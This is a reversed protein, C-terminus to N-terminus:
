LLGAHRLAEATRPDKQAIEKLVKELKEEREELTKYRSIMPSLTTRRDWLIFGVLTFMGALVVYILNRLDAVSARLDNIQLRLSDIQQQNALKLDDIRQALGDFQQQNALKFDDIQRQLSKLGEELRILRDRDGQTFPIAQRESQAYVEQGMLMASLFLVILTILKMGKVRGADQRHTLGVTPARYATGRGDDMVIKWTENLAMEGNVGNVIEGFLCEWNWTCITVFYVGAQAYDCDKLRVSRRHRKGM